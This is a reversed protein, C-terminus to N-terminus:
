EKTKYYVKECLRLFEIAPLVMVNLVLVTFLAPPPPVAEALEVVVRAVARIPRLM